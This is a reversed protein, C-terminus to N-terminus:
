SVVGGLPRDLEKVREGILGSELNDLQQAFPLPAHALQRVREIGRLGAQREM